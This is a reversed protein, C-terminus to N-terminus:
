KSRRVEPVMSAPIAGTARELEALALAYDAQANIYETQVGRYTRQAELVAIISTKGEQFGVRSAELLRRSQELLGQAYEKLVAEAARVQALAQKVEQRVQNHVATIRDAQARAAEEVQRIRHHRSGYDFLPLTLAIGFGFNRIGGRTVSEARFQPALDPFGEARALRAEQRFSDAVAEEAAIEARAAFAQQLVADTDVVAVTPLLLFLSVIPEAPDRGLLTNLAARASATQSEAQLVQQRARSVEIGAQVVDIGPRAGLEVQRRAIREFEEAIKLVERALALKEQARALEYYAVKTEFVLNRLEVVARAEAALLQANAIGTRAARTGNLELRQQVLVEEDSGGVTVGPVFVVEPNTLARALRVGLRAAERNRVAASLRPNNRIALAVAEEVTLPPPSPQALAVGSACCLFVLIFIRM